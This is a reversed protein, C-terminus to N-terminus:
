ENEKQEKATKIDAIIQELTGVVPVMAGGPGIVAVTKQEPMLMAGFVQDVFLVVTGPTKHNPHNFTIIRSANM